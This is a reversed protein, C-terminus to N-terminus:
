SLKLEGQKRHLKHVLNHITNDIRKYQHRLCRQLIEGFHVRAEERTLEMRMAQVLYQLDARENMEPMGAELMMLLLSTLLHTHRRLSNYAQGCRQVFSSYLVSDQGGLVYAMEKTFVFPMKERKM